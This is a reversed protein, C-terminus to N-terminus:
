KLNYRLYVKNASKISSIEKARCEIQVEYMRENYEKWEGFIDRRNKIPNEEKVLGEYKKM